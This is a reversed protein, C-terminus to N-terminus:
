TGRSKWTVTGSIQSVATISTCSAKRLRTASTTATRVTDSQDTEMTAPVSLPSVLVSPLTTRLSATRNLTTCTQNVFLTMDSRIEHNM